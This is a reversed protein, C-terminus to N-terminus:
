SQKPSTPRGSSCSSSLTVTDGNMKAPTVLAGGTEFDLETLAMPMVRGPETEVMPAITLATSV